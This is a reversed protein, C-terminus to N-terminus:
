VVQFRVCIIITIYIPDDKVASWGVCPRVGFLLLVAAAIESLMTLPFNM